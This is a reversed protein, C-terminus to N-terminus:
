EIEIEEGDDPRFGEPEIEAYRDPMVVNGEGGGARFVIRGGIVVGILTIIFGALLGAGFSLLLLYHQELVEARLIQKKSFNDVKGIKEAAADAAQVVARDAPLVDVQTVDPGAVAQWVQEV